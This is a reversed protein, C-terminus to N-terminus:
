TNNSTGKETQRLREYASRISEHAREDQQVMNRSWEVTEQSVRGNNEEMDRKVATRILDAYLECVKPQNENERTM